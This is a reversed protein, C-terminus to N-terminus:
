PNFGFGCKTLMEKDGIAVYQDKATPSLFFNGSVLCVEQLGKMRVIMNFREVFALGALSYKNVINRGWVYEPIPSGFAVIRMDCLPMLGTVSPQIYTATRHRYMRVKDECLSAVPASDWVDDFSWVQKHQPYKEPDFGPDILLVTLDWEEAWCKLPLISPCQQQLVSEASWNDDSVYSAIGIFIFQKEGLHDILHSLEAQLESTVAEEESTPPAAVLTRLIVQLTSEKAIGYSEVTRPGELRKGGLDLWFRNAQLPDAGVKRLVKGLVSEISEEALVEVTKTTRDIWRIFIQFPVSAM